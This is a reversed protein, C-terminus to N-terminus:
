KSQRLRRYYSRGNNLSEVKAASIDFGLVSYGAEAYRLCLPLGVYGLGVIGIAATKAQLKDILQQQTDSM